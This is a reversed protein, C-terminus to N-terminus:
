HRECMAEARLFFSSIRTMSHHSVLVFSSSQDAKPCLGIVIKFAPRFMSQIMNTNLKKLQADNSGAPRHLSLSRWSLHLCYDREYSMTRCLPCRFRTQTLRDLNGNLVAQSTVSPCWPAICLFLFKYVLRNLSQYSHRGVLKIDSIQAYVDTLQPRGSPFLCRDSEWAGFSTKSISQWNRSPDVTHHYNTWMLIWPGPISMFARNITTTGGHEEVAFGM